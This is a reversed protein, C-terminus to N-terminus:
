KYYTVYYTTTCTYNSINCGFTFIYIFCEVTKCHQKQIFIHKYKILFHTMWWSDTKGMMILLQRCNFFRCFYSCAFTKNHRWAFLDRYIFVLIHLVFLRWRAWLVIISTNCQVRKLNHWVFAPDAFIIIRIHLILCRVKGVSVPNNIHKM